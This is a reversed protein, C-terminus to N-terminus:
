LMTIIVRKIIGTCGHLRRINMSTLPSHSTIADVVTLREGKASQVGGKVTVKPAVGRKM